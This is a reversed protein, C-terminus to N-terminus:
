TKQTVTLSSRDIVVVESNGAEVSVLRARLQLLAIQVEPAPSRLFGELEMIRIPELNLQVSWVVYAVHASALSRAAIYYRYRFALPGLSVCRTTSDLIYWRANTISMLRKERSAALHSCGSRRPRPGSPRRITVPPTPAGDSLMPPTWTM